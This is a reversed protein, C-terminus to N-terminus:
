PDAFVVGWEAVGRNSTILIADIEYRRSVLLFFHAADPEPPPNGLEDAM